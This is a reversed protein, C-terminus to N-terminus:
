IVEANNMKVAFCSEIQIKFTHRTMRGAFTRLLISNSGLAEKKSLSEGIKEIANDFDQLTFPVLIAADKQQLRCCFFSLVWIFCCLYIGCCLM